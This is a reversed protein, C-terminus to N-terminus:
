GVGADRVEWIADTPIEVAEEDVTLRAVAERRAFGDFRGVVEVPGAAGTYAILVPGGRRLRLREDWGYRLRGDPGSRPPRGVHVKHARYSAALEAAHEGGRFEATADLLVRAFTRGHHPLGSELGLAWHTLEHLVVGKTRYRRPLTISAGGDERYFAQRAGNGPRLRPIAGLDREPFRQQWWFSGVVREAFSACAPLGPLPSTAVPTEALYVRRRQADRPRPPRASTEREPM